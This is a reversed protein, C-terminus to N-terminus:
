CTVSDTSSKRPVTTLHVAVERRRTVKAHHNGVCLFVKEAVLRAIQTGPTPDTLGNEAITTSVMGSRSSTDFPCHKGRKRYSARIPDDARRSASGGLREGDEDGVAHWVEVEELEALAERPPDVGGVPPM